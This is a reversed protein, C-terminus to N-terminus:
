NDPSSYVSRVRGEGERGLLEEVGLVGVGVGLQLVLSPSPSYSIGKQKRTFTENLLGPSTM